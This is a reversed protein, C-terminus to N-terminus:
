AEVWVNEEGLIRILANIFRKQSNVLYKGSRMNKTDGSDDILHLILRCDGPYKEALELIDALTEEKVVELNLQIHVRKSKADMYGELPIIEEAIIKSDEAGRSSVKGHIFVPFDLRIYNKYKEYVDAFALLEVTGNLSELTLFAMQREKKDYLKRIHTIMGGLRVASKDLHELSETFDYNSFSEIETKYQLLPHGSLFMGVAEKEKLWKENDNWRPVDPLKPEQILSQTSSDGLGFLSFQNGNKEKQIIQAYQIADNVAEFKQARNGELEDMAGSTVLSELAKRNVCKLDLACVFDFITKFPGQSKRAEVVCEAARGGVNKIANLGYRISGDQPTFNVESQNVSPPLIDSDLSRVENALIAIRSANNMESTLNAAMFEAPYHAKLYGEQYALVAYAASHSKNFGYRAFKEILNYVEEAQGLKVGKKVAGEVFEKKLDAMTSKQKKGIARRMLDAKALSFGGIVSVIQMVQEQYVIIGYTDKLIPELEPLSFPITARGQKRQIFDEIMNMPGPRYLANMAILDEIGSPQLKKLYERMGASEFQFIGITKGEGFIELTAPDNEPIANLDLNINRTQLMALTNDIVTLNRLGLFDVKLLGITDICKMDYQTTIDGNTSQYLPVYDTLDGPAIV